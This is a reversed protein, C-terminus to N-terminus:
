GCTNESVVRGVGAASLEGRRTEGWGAVCRWVVFAQPNELMGKIIIPIWKGLLNVGDHLQSQNVNSHRSAGINISHKQLNYLRPVAYEIIKAIHQKALAINAQRKAKHSKEHDKKQAKEQV